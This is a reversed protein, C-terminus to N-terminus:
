PTEIKPFIQNKQTIFSSFNLDFVELQRNPRYEGKPTADLAQCPRHENQNVMLFRFFLAVRIYM